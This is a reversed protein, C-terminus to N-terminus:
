RPVALRLGVGLQQLTRRRCEFGGKPRPSRHVIQRPRGFMAGVSPVRQSLSWAVYGQFHDFYSKFCPIFLHWLFSQIFRLDDSCFQLTGNYHSVQTFIDKDDEESEMGLNNMKLDSVIKKCNNFVHLKLYCNFHRIKVSYKLFFTEVFWMKFQSFVSISM